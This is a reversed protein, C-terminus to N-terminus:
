TVTIHTLAGEISTRV